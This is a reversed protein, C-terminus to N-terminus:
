SNGTLMLRNGEPVNLPHNDFVGARPKQTYSPPPPSDRGPHTHSHSTPGSPRRFWRGTAPVAPGLPPLARPHHGRQERGCGMRTVRVATLRGGVGGGPDGPGRMGRRDGGRGEPPRRLATDWGVSLRDLTGRTVARGCRGWRCDRQVPKVDSGNPRMVREREASPSPLHRRHSLVGGSGAEM